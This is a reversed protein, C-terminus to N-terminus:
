APDFFQGEMRAFVSPRPPPGGEPEAPYIGGLMVTHREKVYLQGRMAMPEGRFFPKRFLIETRVTRHNAADQGAGHILRTFHNELHNMYELVNIHQNIDTNQLGWVTRQEGWQGSDLAGYGEPPTELLGVTPYPEDLPHEMLKRLREPTVALHREARPALPRTIVHLGRFHGAKVLRDSRPGGGLSGSGGHKEAALIDVNMDLLLRSAGPTSQAAANEAAPAGRRLHVQFETRVRSMLELAAPQATFRLYFMVPIVGEARLASVQFERELETFVPNMCLRIFARIKLNHLQDIDEFTLHDQGTGALYERPQDTM